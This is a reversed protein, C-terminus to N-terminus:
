FIFFVLESNNYTMVTVIKIKINKCSRRGNVFEYRKVCFKINIVFFTSGDIIFHSQSPTILLWSLLVIILRLSYLHFILYIFKVFIM